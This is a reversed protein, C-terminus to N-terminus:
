AGEAGGIRKADALREKEYEMVRESVDKMKDAGFVVVPGITVTPGPQYKQLVELALKIAPVDEKKAKRSLALLFQGVEGGLYALGLNYVADTFGPIKKWSVLTNEHVGHAKAFARQTRVDDPREENPLAMWEIFLMQTTTWDAQFEPPFEVRRTM